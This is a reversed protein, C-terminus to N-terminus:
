QAYEALTRAHERDTLGTPAEASSEALWADFSRTAVLSAMSAPVAGTGTVAFGGEAVAVDLAYGPVHPDGCPSQAPAVDAAPTRMAELPGACAFRFACLKLVVSYGPKGVSM